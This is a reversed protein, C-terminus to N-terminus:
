PETGTGGARALVGEGLRQLAAKLREDGIAELRAELAEAESASLPPPPAARMTRRRVRTQHIKLAAIAEYGYYGNIREIIRASDHQLDIASAGEVAVVLVGGRGRGEEAEGGRPWRVREPASTEALREGVIARWNAILDAYAFGFRRLVKAAIPSFHKDLRDLAPGRRIPPFATAPSDRVTM